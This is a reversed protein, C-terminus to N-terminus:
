SRAGGERQNLQQDDDGDDAHKDAQEKRSDLLNPFRGIPGCAHVIEPLQTEGKMVM